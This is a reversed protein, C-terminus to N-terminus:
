ACSTLGVARRVPERQADRGLIDVFQTDEFVVDGKGKLKLDLEGSVAPKHTIIQGARWEDEISPSAKCSISRSGEPHVVM